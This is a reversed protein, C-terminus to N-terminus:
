AFVRQAAEHVAIAEDITDYFTLKTDKLVGGRTCYSRLTNPDHSIMILTGSERRAHLAQDCRIRFREDGAATVEDVLYCDFNIALSIGFALRASMGASYTYIPQHFYAGLQAFDEVYDLLEDTPQGYIRAIFRANDAGTLSSQFCSSYGIPWSCTGTRTVRGSTPLEVGAILRMLTSKGAGNAGCIGVSEGRTIEFSVDDLVLKQFKRINYVKSVDKFYIM